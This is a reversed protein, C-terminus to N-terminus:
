WSTSPITAVRAVSEIAIASVASGYDLDINEMTDHTDHYGTRHIDYNEMFLVVPIGSDSFILGDTNYLTSHPDDWTRVEGDVALHLAMEPITKGDTTRQGEKCKLREPTLNLNAALKNWELAAKHAECALHLSPENKGPSIQFIDRANDRNHAIMDMVYVGKVEVSSLDLLSGDERKMQLTKQVYHQCFNRAGMCDSPFEEGTLHVLWIDRELKGEKSLQLFIPAAMLLTATASHNDDAGAASLRGGIGGSEKDFVDEMYATDYHDAMVVAEKRNKGPIIVVLDREYEAGKQNSVWGGYGPFEFDTEWRFPLEGAEAMNEIGANKISERHRRLLFDGLQQLDRKKHTIHHLTPDDQVVDANDKNIYKGHALEFIENWYVEEYKRNATASYTLVKSIGAAHDEGSIMGRLISEIRSASSPNKSLSPLAKLWEELSVKKPIRILNRAFHRHLPKENFIEWADIISAINLSTQHLYHDHETDFTRFVATHLERNLIRPWFKIPNTPDPYDSHCATLFGNLRDTLIEPKTAGKPVFAVLPRHWFIEYPGAQMPPFYFRYRFLGGGLLILAAEGIEKRGARPGDLLIDFNETLIQSNRAMPKNYLDLAELNTSFLTQLVPDIKSDKLLGDEYRKQRDWRSSRIYNNVILEEYIDAKEKGLGPQFLWGSQPVRIGHAGENRHVLRLMPFQIATYLKRSLRIYDRNGWLILSGPFPLLALKGALYKKRVIEPLYVFPRFTLLFRVDDFSDADSIMYKQMWSPHSIPRWYYVPSSDGTPLYRFHTNNLEEGYGKQLIENFLGTFVSEHREKTESEFFSQWFALEPGQESAGYFTWRVRGKDDKTKSLSLPALLVYREHLLKGAQYSLEPPWYENDSLNRGNHGALVRPLTGKGLEMLHEMVQEGITKLGPRLQYEEEMEMVRWGEPDDESLVWSYPEGTCPNFGTKVPPMFESYALIPYGDEGQFWPFGERLKKWGASPNMASRSTM